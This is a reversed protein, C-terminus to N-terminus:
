TREILSLEREEQEYNAVAEALREKLEPYTEFYATQAAAEAPILGFHELFLIRQARESSLYLLFREAALKEKATLTNSVSFQVSTIGGLTDHLAYLGGLSQQITQYEGVSGRYVNAGHCSNLFSAYDTTLELDSLVTAKLADLTLGSAASKELNLYFLVADYAITEAYLGGTPQVKRLNSLPACCSHDMPTPFIAAQVTCDDTFQLTVMPYLATFDAQLEELGDKSTFVGDPFQVTLTCPSLQVSYLTRSHVFATISCVVILVLAATTAAFIGKRKRRYATEAGQLDQPPTRASLIHLVEEARRLRLHPDLALCRLALTSLYEPVGPNVAAPPLLDSVNGRPRDPAPAPFNGTLMYYLTAGLAYVDTWTGQRGNRQYQEPPTCGAKVVVTRETEEAANRAAGFDFLCVRGNQLLFINDPSIDRHLMKHSHVYSLGDAVAYIIRAADEMNQMRGEPLTKLYQSLTMGVLYEMIMYATGNQECYGYVDIINHRGKLGATRAAELKFRLLGEDFRRRNEGERCIVSRRDQESREAYSQPFYEKIAVEAHFVTDYARYTIAFGGSGLVSLIQYRNQITDGPILSYLEAALM